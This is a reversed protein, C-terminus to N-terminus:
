GPTEGWILWALLGTFVIQAYEFPMVVAPPALALARTMLVQAVGGFLGLAVFLALDPATPTIWVFPLVTVVAVMCLVPYWILGERIRGRLQRRAAMGPSALTRAQAM